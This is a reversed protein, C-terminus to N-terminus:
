MSIRTLSVYMFMKLMCVPIGQCSNVCIYEYVCTKIFVLIRHPTSCKRYVCGARVHARVCTRVFARICAHLCAPLCAPTCARGCAQVGARECARVCARVRVCVRVCVVRYEVVWGGVRVCM